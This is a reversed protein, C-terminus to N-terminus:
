ATVRPAGYTEQSNIFVKSAKQDRERQALVKTSPGRSQRHQWAYDDSKSIHLLAAMRTLASNDELAYM